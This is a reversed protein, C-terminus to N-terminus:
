VKRQEKMLRANPQYPKECPKEAKKDNLSIGCGKCHQDKGWRHTNSVMRQVM